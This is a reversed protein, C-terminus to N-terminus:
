RYCPGQRDPWFVTVQGEHRFVSGHVDPIAHAVCADNVVYRTEFNDSGDIVADHGALLDAVNARDVRVRHTRVGVTPNLAEIRARASDVKPLGTAADTHLIQRHLNSRAVVDDDILTLTGVGAAALYFAAPSGLGGTGVLAVRSDRLKLQGREGVDPMALQRAYREYDLGGDLSAPADVPLGESQWRELGGAVSRVDRYGLAIIEAAITLSSIGRNCILLVTEARDPALAAMSQALDARDLRRAGAPTGRWREGPLRVDILATGRAILEAARAPTIERCEDHKTRSM